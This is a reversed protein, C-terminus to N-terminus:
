QKTVGLILRLSTAAIEWALSVIKACEESLGASPRQATEDFEDALRTLRTVLEDHDAKQQNLAWQTVDCEAILRGHERWIPSDVPIEHDNSM